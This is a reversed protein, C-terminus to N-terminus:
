DKDGKFFAKGDMFIHVHFSMLLHVCLCAFFRIACCLVDMLSMVRVKQTFKNGQLRFCDAGDNVGAPIWLPCHVRSSPIFKDSLKPGTFSWNAATCRPVPGHHLHGHVSRWSFVVHSQALDPVKFLFLYISWYIFLHFLFHFLRFCM